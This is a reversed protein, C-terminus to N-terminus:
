LREKSGTWQSRALPKDDGIKTAGARWRSSSQSGTASSHMFLLGLRQKFKKQVETLTQLVLYFSQLKLIMDIHWLPILSVRSLPLSNWAIQYISISKSYFIDSELIAAQGQQDEYNNLCFRRICLFSQWTKGQSLWRSIFGRVGMINHLPTWKPLHWSISALFLSLLFLVTITRRYLDNSGDM